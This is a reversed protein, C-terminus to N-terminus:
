GLSVYASAGVHLPYDPDPHEIHILVPFRQPLLLWQNEPPIKQLLDSANTQHRGVAWNVSEVTGHYIKKGLYMKLRITAKEGIHVHALDTEKFNAQVWWQRTDVFAFLPVFARVPSGRALFLNSITGDTKAYVKTAALNYKALKLSAFAAQMEDFATAQVREATKLRNELKQHSFDVADNQSSKAPKKALSIKLDAKVLNVTQTVDDFHLKAKQYVAEAAQYRDIFARDDLSFLLQGKKVFQGNKVAIKHIVGSVQAAVPRINAVVYADDTIKAFYAYFYIIYAIILMLLVVIVVKSHKIFNWLAPMVFVETKECKGM